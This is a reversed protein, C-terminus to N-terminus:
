PQETQTTNETTPAGNIMKQVLEELAVIRKDLEVKELKQVELEVELQTIRTDHEDQTLKIHQVSDVTLAVVPYLNIATKDDTTFVIDSDEAIFGYQLPIDAITPLPDGEVRDERMKYLKDMDSKFYYQQTKLGMIKELSSIEIDKIGTKILRTSTQQLSVCKINRAELDRFETGNANKIQFGNTYGTVHSARLVVFGLSLDADSNNDYLQMHNQTSPKDKKGFYHRGSESTSDFYGKSNIVTNNGATVKFDKSPEIFIDTNTGISDTKLWIYGQQSAALTLNNNSRLALTGNQYFSVESGRLFVNSNSNYSSVLGISASTTTYDDTTGSIPTNQTLILSGVVGGSQTRGMILTPQIGTGDQTNYFGWYCRQIGRDYLMIDQENLKVFRQASSPATKITVGVLEQAKLHKAEIFGNLYIKDAQILVSQATQNITSAVDGSKVRLSIEQSQVKLESEHREVIAKSGFRNDSDIMNYVETKEARLSIAKTNQDINTEMTTIKSNFESTAVKKAIEAIMQDYNGLEKPNELFTSPTKGKQLMPQSMWLRGNRKIVFIPRIKTIATTPAPLTVSIRVWSNNVLLPAIQLTKSSVWTGGNYYALDIYAGQDLLAKNDTYFWASLVHDGSEPVAGVDQFISSNKDVTQSTVEMKVSNFGDHHRASEPTVTLNSGNAYTTWKTISPTRSTVAGTSANIVRDEFATNLFLNESGLGGVYEQMQTDSVKSKIQNNLQTIDSTNQQIIGGQQGQTQSLTTITQSNLDTTQKVQNLTTQMTGQDQQVKSITQSNTDLTQKIENTTKTFSQDSVFDSSSLGWGTVMNGPEAQPMRYFIEGNNFLALRIGGQTASANKTAMTRVIRTWKNAKASALEEKTLAVDQWDVRTGKADFFEIIVARDGVFADFQPIKIYVSFTYDTNITVPFMKSYASIIANPSNAPLNTRAIRFVGARKDDAWPEQYYVDTKNTYTWGIPLGERQSLDSNFILNTGISGQTVLKTITQSNEETTQKIENTTKTFDTNSVTSDTWRTGISGDELKLNKFCLYKGTSNANMPFRVRLMFAKTTPKLKFTYSGRVFSTEGTKIPNQGGEAWGTGNHEFVVLHVFGANSVLDASFTYEKGTELGRLDNLKYSGVQYFSDTGDSSVLKIYDNEFTMTARSAQHGDKDGAFEPYEKNASSNALYNNNTFSSEVKTIKATNSDVKQTIENTTQTFEGTSVAEETAPGWSTAVTGEELQLHKININGFVDRSGVTVGIATIDKDKLTFLAKQPSETWSTGVPQNDRRMSLYEINGDAYRVVLEAGMWPNTGKGTINGTLIYSLTLKKNRYIVKKSTELSKISSYNATANKVDCIFETDIALNVSGIQMNTFDGEVKTIKKSNEDAIIKVENVTNSVNTVNQNTQKLEDKTATLKLAEATQDYKTNIDQFAKINGQKDTEYVQKGVTSKDIYDKTYVGDKDAKGEIQKNVWTADVKNNVDVVLDGIEKEIVEVEGKLTVVERNLTKQADELAGTDPTVRTWQGGSWLYMVKNNPDSNNVWITKGDKLDETPATPQEIVNASNSEVYDATAEALDKAIQSEKEAKEAAKKADEITQDQENVKNQLEDFLDQPVKDGIAALMKQYLKRLADNPDVIERYNGFTYKGARPDKHSEEGGIARAELYLPPNFGDDIIRVTDGEYVKEHTFGEVQSIDVVDVEYAVNSNVRKKIETKALTLLRAPTMGQDETEPTYFGYRHKGNINWRQFAEEDVLYISGNNVSEITTLVDKGDADQGQVFPILATVIGESNEIRTVGQLDKGITIEKSTDRGKRELLDVYRTHIGSGAITVRYNLECKGFLGRIQNLLQLPSMFTDIKTSRTGEVEIDGVKYQTGKLAFELLQKPTMNKLEQPAFYSDKDLLTWEGQAYVTMTRAQSDREVETIVYPIVQGSNAQKLILNQQQLLPAYKTGEQFVVDIMDVSNQVQWTRKDSLYDKAQIVDVAKQSKFDIIHLEGTSKTGM